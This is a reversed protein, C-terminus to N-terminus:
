RKNIKQSYDGEMVRLIINSACGFTRELDSFHDLIVRAGTDGFFAVLRVRHIQKIEDIM